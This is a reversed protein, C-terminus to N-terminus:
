GITGRGIRDLLLRPPRITETDDLIASARQVAAEGWASSWGRAWERLRERDEPGFSRAQSVAANLAESDGALLVFPPRIFPYLPKVGGFSLEVTPLGLALAELGVGSSRQIVVCPGRRLLDYTRGRHLPWGDPIAERVTRLNSSPHPAVTVVDIGASMILAAMAELEAKPCPSLAWVIGLERDQPVPSPPLVSPDGVVFLGAEDAGLDLYHQQELPGRLGAATVPLDAYFPSDAVPAHPLYVSRKGQAHAAALVARPGPSHQNSVVVTRIAQGRLLRDAEALTLATRALKRALKIPDPQLGASRCDDIVALFTRVAEVLLPAMARAQPRAPARVPRGTSLRGSMVARLVRGETKTFATFLDGGQTRYRMGSGSGLADFARHVASTEIYPNANVPEELTEFLTPRVCWYLTSRPRACDLGTLLTECRQRALRRQDSPFRVM